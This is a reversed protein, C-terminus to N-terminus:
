RFTQISYIQDYRQAAFRSMSPSNLRSMGSISTISPSNIRSVHSRLPSEVASPSHSSFATLRSQNGTMAAAHGPTLGGAVAAAGLVGSSAFVDTTGGCAM